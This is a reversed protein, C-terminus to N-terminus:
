VLDAFAWALCVEIYISFHEHPEIGLAHQPPTNNTTLFQQPLFPVDNREKLFEISFKMGAYLTWHNAGDEKGELVEGIGVM